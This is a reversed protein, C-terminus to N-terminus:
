GGKAESHPLDAIKKKPWADMKNAHERAISVIEKSAGVSEALSAWMRVTAGGVADQGRILFVPEDAPIIRTTGNTTIVASHSLEGHDEIGLVQRALKRAYKGRATVMGMELVLNALEIAPGSDQIINYDDRAHKM